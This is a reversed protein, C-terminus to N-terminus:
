LKEKYIYLILYFQTQLFVCLVHTMIIGLTFHDAEVRLDRPRSIRIKMEAKWEKRKIRQRYIYFPM